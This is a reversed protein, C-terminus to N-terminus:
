MTPVYNAWELERKLCGECSDDKDRNWKWSGDGNDIWTCGCNSLCPTSGDGPYAPLDAAGTALRWYMQQSSRAYLKARAVIADPSLNGAKIARAFDELYSDQSRIQAGLQLYDDMTAAGNAGARVQMAFADRIESRMEVHWDRLTIEGNALQRALLEVRHEWLTIITMRPDAM